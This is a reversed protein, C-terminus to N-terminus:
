FEIEFEGLEVLWKVIRGSADRNRNIVQSLVACFLKM